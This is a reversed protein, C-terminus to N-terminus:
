TSPMPHEVIEEAHDFAVPFGVRGEDDIMHVPAPRRSASVRTADNSELRSDDAKMIQAIPGNEPVFQRSFSPAAGIHDDQDTPGDKDEFEFVVTDCLLGMNVLYRGIGAAKSMIVRRGVRGNDDRDKHQGVRDM